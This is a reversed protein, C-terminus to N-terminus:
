TCSSARLESASDRLFPEIGGLDPHTTRYNAVVGPVQAAVAVMARRAELARSEVLVTAALLSVIAVIFVGVGVYWGVIRARLSKM